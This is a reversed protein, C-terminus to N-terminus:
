ELLKDQSVKLNYGSVTGKERVTVEIEGNKWYVTLGDPYAEGSNELVTLQSIFGEKAFTESEPYPDKLFPGHFSNTQIRKAMKHQEEHSQFDNKDSVLM